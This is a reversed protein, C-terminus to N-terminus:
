SETPDFSLSVVWLVMRAVKGGVAALYPLFPLAKKTTMTLAAAAAAHKSAFSALASACTGQRRRGPEIM